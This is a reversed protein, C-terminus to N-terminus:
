AGAGPVATHWLPRGEDDYSCPGGEGCTACLGYDEPSDDPEHNRIDDTANHRECGNQWGPEDARAWDCTCRLDCGCPNQHCNLQMGHCDQCGPCCGPQCQHAIGFDTM